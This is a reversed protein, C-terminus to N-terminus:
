ELGKEDLCNEYASKEPYFGKITESEKVEVRAIQACEFRAKNEVESKYASYFNNGVFFGLVGVLVIAISLIILGINNM